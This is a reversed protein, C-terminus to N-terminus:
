SHANGTDDAAREQSATAFRGSWYTGNPTTAWRKYDDYNAKLAATRPRWSDVVAMYANPKIAMFEDLTTM